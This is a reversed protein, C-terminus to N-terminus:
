ESEVGEQHRMKLYDQHLKREEGPTHGDSIQYLLSLMQRDSVKGDRLLESLLKISSFGTASEARRICDMAAQLHDFAHEVWRDTNSLYGPNDPLQQDAPIPNPHMNLASLASIIESAAGQLPDAYLRAERPDSM